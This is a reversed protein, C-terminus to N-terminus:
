PNYPDGYDMMTSMDSMIELLDIYQRLEFAAVAPSALRASERERETLGAYSPCEEFPNNELAMVDNGASWNSVADLCRARRIMSEGSTIRDAYDIAGYQLGNQSNAFTILSGAVLEPAEGGLEFIRSEDIFGRDYNNPFRAQGLVQWYLQLTFTAFPNVPTAQPTDLRGAYNPFILEGAGDVTPAVTEFNQSM